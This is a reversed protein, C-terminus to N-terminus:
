KEFEIGHIIIQKQNVFNILDAISEEDLKLTTNVDPHLQQIYGEGNPTLWLHYGKEEEDNLRMSFSLLPKTVIVKEEKLEEANIVANIFINLIQKEKNTIIEDPLKKGGVEWYNLTIQEVNEIKNGCATLFILLTIFLMYSKKV